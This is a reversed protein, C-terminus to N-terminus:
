TMEERIIEWVIIEFKNAKIKKITKSCTNRLNRGLTSFQIEFYLGTKRFCINFNIDFKHM